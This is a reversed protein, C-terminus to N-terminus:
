VASAVVETDSWPIVRREILTVITFFAVGAATAVLIGAWVLQTQYQVTQDIVYFGLGSDATIWEAVM